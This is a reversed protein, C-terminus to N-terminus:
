TIVKDKLEANHITNAAQSTTFLKLQCILSFHFNRQYKLTHSM